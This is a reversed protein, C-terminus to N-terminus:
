VRKEYEAAFKNWAYRIAEPVAARGLEPHKDTFEEIGKVFSARFTLGKQGPQPMLIAVSM